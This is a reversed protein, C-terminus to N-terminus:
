KENNKRAVIHFIHWDRDEGLPTKGPHEEEELLEIAYPKLLTKVQLRTFCNVLESNAWSDRDGFLHGCFRGGDLLSNFIKNWLSPFTDPDCFPLCFSANILDVSKPLELEEFSIIQTTLQRSNLDPRSLLRNIADAERDIALVRWNHRLIAVTDRGDGCGLDIAMGSKKFTDLATLITKRPPRNAVADYYAKWDRKQTSANM